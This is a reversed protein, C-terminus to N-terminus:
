DPALTPHCRCRAKISTERGRQDRVRGRRAPGKGPAPTCTWCASPRPASTPTLSSSGPSHQWPKIADRDLWRRVTSVSVFTVIDRAAAERALERCSWRALPSGAEAPLRCALAKVEAVQLATFAPPSGLPRPRGSRGSGPRRVQGALM